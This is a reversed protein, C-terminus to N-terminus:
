TLYGTFDFDPIGPNREGATNGAALLTNGSIDFGLLIAAQNVGVQNVAIPVPPSAISIVYLIGTGSTSSGTATSSAVYAYIQDVVEAYPKLDPSSPQLIGLFLPVAPNTFDFVLLDGNQAAVGHSSLYSTTYSTTVFAYNGSFSLDVMSGYNTMAIDVLNPAQPNSLGYIAFSEHNYSLGFIEVLYPNSVTLNIACRDGNGNLVSDGFEGIYSPATPNTVNVMVIRSSGCIYAVNNYLAITSAASNAFAVAGSLQLPSTYTGTGSVSVVASASVYGGETIVLPYDGSPLTPVQINAQALGAFGQVLGLFQIQASQPGITATYTATATSVPSSPTPSGDAVPNNVAGIGTLYVVIVSGSPAAASEGNITPTNGNQAVAHNTGYQFIAPASSTVTFTFSASAGGPGHVVLSATGSKLSSPAQFNIQNTNVYLLPVSAGGIAVSTGLLNTPLPFASASAEGSALNTGFISALSGPAVRPGYSAADTVSQLEPVPTAATCPTEVWCILGFLITIFRWKSFHRMLMPDAIKM